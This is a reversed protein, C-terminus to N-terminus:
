ILDSRLLPRQQLHYFHINLIFCYRSRNELRAFISQSYKQASLRLFHLQYVCSFGCSMTSAHNSCIIHPSYYILSLSLRHKNEVTLQRVRVKILDGIQRKMLQQVFLTNKPSKFGMSAWLESFVLMDIVFFGVTQQSGQISIWNQRYPSINTTIHNM